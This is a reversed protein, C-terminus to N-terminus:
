RFDVVDVDDYDDPNFTFYSANLSGIEKFNNITYTYQTGSKDFITFKKLRDKVDIIMRIKHFTKDRSEPDLEVVRDGNGMRSILAYKFGSKYLDYVNGLNVEAEEPNYPSVTVENIEPTYVWVEDGNNYIQSGAIDLKYNDGQVTIKGTMRENVGASKNVIKQSFSATFAGAKKYKNSMDDLVAKAAPDYQSQAQFSIGLILAITAIAKYM